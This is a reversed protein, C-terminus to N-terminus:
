KLKFTNDFLDLVFKKYEDNFPVFEDSYFLNKFDAYNVWKVEAVEEEQLKLKSIDLDKKMLYIQAIEFSDYYIYESIFKYDQEKTILGLEEYTERIAGQIPDGSIIHGASPM